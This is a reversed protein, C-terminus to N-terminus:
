LEQESHGHHRLQHGTGGLREGAAQLQRRHPEAPDRGRQRQQHASGAGALYFTGDSYSAYALSRVTMKIGKLEATDNLGNANGVMEGGECGGLLGVAAVALTAAGVSKLFGRRTLEM